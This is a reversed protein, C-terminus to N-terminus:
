AFGYGKTKKAFIYNITDNAPVTINMLRIWKNTGKKDVELTFNVPQQSKHSLTLQRFDYGSFLYSYSFIGAKIDDRLWVSGRGIVPGLNDLQQPTIFWLNSNSEKPSAYEAKLSRKNIFESRASDDCGFVIQNKWRCFDGVVKLYNSRPRIGASNNISFHSPFGWITGHMTALLEEEGIERIRPWETNWGHSGDYSHSGKPLRYYYWKENEL